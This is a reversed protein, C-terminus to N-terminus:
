TYTGKKKALALAAALGENLIPEDDLVAKEEDKIEVPRTDIEVSQWGRNDEEEQQQQKQETYEKDFDQVHPPTACSMYSHRWHKCLLCARPSASM